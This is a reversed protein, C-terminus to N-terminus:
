LKDFETLWTTADAVDLQRTVFKAVDAHRILAALSQWTGRQLYAATLDFLRGVATQSITWGLNRHTLVGCGRLQVEVPGVQSEDTVGVTVQDASFEKAFLALSEAVATAQDAIDGAGILQQDDIPLHHNNWGQTDVCGFEDFRFSANQPAAVLSILESDLSRLMAVLADSLDSAGVLVVKRSSHCNEMLIADRRSWHPDALGAADLSALYEDFLRSLLKWRRKEADTEAAEVVERFSIQNASLEEHLRRLTGALELWPGVPEPAPITPLLPALDDPHQERLVRAWALTQELELAVPVPPQYLREALQGITVVVPPVYQLDFAEMERYLLEEFRRVGHSSPLVCVLSSLDCRHRNTHRERLLAAARPLLPADWGLYLTECTTSFLKM